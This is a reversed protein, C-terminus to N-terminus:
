QAGVMAGLPINAEALAHRVRENIARRLEFQRLPATKISARLVVRERSLEEIGIWELPELVSNRWAEEQAMSEITSRVLEIARRIDANPDVPLRYNVRSWNRSQNVVATVASHPITTLNGEIDRVQVMRLTLKEVIGSFSNITVYDGVVYQDEMLVLFGNLFDRVFNQAALSLAIATVGGITVVSAVPVGLQNLISLAAVFALLLTKFGSLTKAITPVRLLERERDAPRRFPALRWARTGYFIAVDSIRNILGVALLTTGVGFARHEAIAEAPTAPPFLSFAWRATLFWAVALAWLIAEALNALRAGKRRLVPLLRWVGLTAILLAAAARLTMELSHQEVSPQRLELLHVLTRQLIGQWSAALAPVTSQSYQADTPTVTVVPLPDPHRADVAELLTIGGERKLDIRLTRPDYITRVQRRSATTALIQRLASEVYERRMRIPLQNPSANAPNAIRFLLTGDIYIPATVYTTDGTDAEPPASAAPGQAPQRGFFPGAAQAGAPAPLLLLLLAVLTSTRACRGTM